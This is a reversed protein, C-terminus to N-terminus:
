RGAPSRYDTEIEAKPEQEKKAKRGSGAAGPRFGDHGPESAQRLRPDQELLRVQFSQEEDLDVPLSQGLVEITMQGKVHFREEVRSVRQKGPDFYITGGDKGHKFSAKSVPFLLDRAEPKPPVYTLNFAYPFRQLDGQQGAYGFSVQGTWSGLFGWSHMVSQDWRVRPRLPKHPQFFSYRALEKWGDRDILSALLITQGIVPAGGAQLRDKVGDFRTLERGPGFVITFTTGTLKQLLSSFLAQIADDAQLLKAAEIKQEVDLGGDSHEKINLSSLVGYRLDFHSDLGQVRCVSKQAVVVEQYLLKGPDVAPQNQSPSQGYIAADQLSGTIACLLGLLGHLAPRTKM